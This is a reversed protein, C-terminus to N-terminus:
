QPFNSAGQNPPASAGLRQTRLGQTRALMGRYVPREFFRYTLTAVTCVTALYVLMTTVNATYESQLYVFMIPHHVLYISFSIDGLATPLKAPGQFLADSKALVLVVFGFVFPATFGLASQGPMLALIAAFLAVALLTPLRGPTWNPLKEYVRYCLMGILFAALCRILGANIIGKYNTFTVDLHGTGLMIAAYIVAILAAFLPVIIRPMRWLPILLLFVAINIWFEISITWAPVNLLLYDPGLGINQVFFVHLLFEKPPLYLDYLVYLAAYVLLTLFHLPYMRFFRRMAFDSFSIEMHKFYSHALVFGSLVLFFDVGYIYSFNTFSTFSQSLPATGEVEQVSSTAFHGGAVCLAALGRFADLTYFRTRTM